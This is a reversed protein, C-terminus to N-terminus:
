LLSMKQTRKEQLPENKPNMECGLWSRGYRQAEEGTTGSGLFPDFVISPIPIAPPCACAQVWKASTTRVTGRTYGQRGDSADLPKQSGAGRVAKEPSVDEQPIFEKEMELRWPMRCAPCCGGAPTGALICPQILKPPFTAFHAEKYPFSAVTWVSRKNRMAPAQGEVQAAERQRTEPAQARRRSFARQLDAPTSDAPNALPEKIAEADFFYRESKALLFFYEHAKSPRDTVSEPMPNPKSWINDMRLYWGDAQLAFACRWPIGVMDKEKLGPVRALSGTKTERKAAAAIQREACGSRGALEGTKGQRGQAGWSGAFSDGLNIWAIGDERLVRHVQRFIHVIHGVFEAPTEELGLCASMEPVRIAPLGAMPIYEIEPWATPPIQYDRLAWYPPSTVVTQIFSDPWTPLIDLVDGFHCQNLIPVSM